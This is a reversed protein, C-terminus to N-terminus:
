QRFAEKLEDLTAFDFNKADEVAQDINEQVEEESKTDDWATESMVQSPTRGQNYKRVDCPVQQRGVMGTSRM